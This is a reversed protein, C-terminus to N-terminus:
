ENSDVKELKKLLKLKKIVVVEPIFDFLTNNGVIVDQAGKQKVSNLVRIITSLKEMKTNRANLLGLYVKRSSFHSYIRALKKINEIIDIGYYDIPLSFLIDLRKANNIEFYTILHKELKTNSLMNKYVEPLKELIENKINKSFISPEHIEIVDAINSIDDLLSNVVSAYDMMLEIPNKYYENSSLSYFTLPGLIVAKLKSNLGIEEKIKRSFELDKIYENNEAKKGEIKERIVPQRYYFNNDFFRQLAGKEIGKTYGFTVDVIDDWRFLGNTVYDLGIDKALQFLNQINEKLYKELKEKDIKGTNYWSIAKGLKPNKPFSGVLAKKVYM